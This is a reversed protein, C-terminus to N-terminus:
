GERLKRKVDAPVEFESTGIDMLQTKATQHVVVDRSRYPGSVRLAGELKIEYATVVGDKLWLTFTGSASLPQAETRGGQVLLLAAGAETLTGTIENGAVALSAHSGAITELEQHPPYLALHFNSYPKDAPVADPRPALRNTAVPDYGTRMEELRRLLKDSQREVTSEEHVKPTELEHPAKWAVRMDIVCDRNGHFLAMIQRRGFWALQPQLAPPIPMKVLTYGESQKRGSIRYSSVDDRVTSSWSYNPQESLKMAAVIAEHANVAAGATMTAATLVLASFLLHKM